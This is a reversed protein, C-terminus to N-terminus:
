REIEPRERTRVASRKLQEDCAEMFARTFQARFDNIAGQRIGVYNATFAEWLRANRSAPLLSLPPSPRLACRWPPTRGM